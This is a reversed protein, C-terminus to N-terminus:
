IPPAPIMSESDPGGMGPMEGMGPMGPTAAGPKVHQYEDPFDDTPAQKGNQPVPQGPMPPTPQYNQYDQYNQAPPMPQQPQNKECDLRTGDSTPMHCDAWQNFAHTQQGM